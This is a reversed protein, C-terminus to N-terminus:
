SKFEGIMYLSGFIIIGDYGKFNRVDEKLQSLPQYRVDKHYKQVITMLDNVKMCRPNDIDTVIVADFIPMIIKCSDEVPKDGLMSFIGLLKDKPHFMKQISKKLAQIGEKNHGGDIITFPENSIVEFRGPWNAKKIGNFIHENSIPIELTERLTKVSEIALISNEVQYTGLMQTYFEDGIYRFTIGPNYSVIEYAKANVKIFPAEMENCCKKLVQIVSDKSNSTICPISKRIIGAKVKAIAEITDGLFDSHDMAIPTIVTLVKNLIGNTADELGGMGVELIAFDLAKDNFLSLALATMVEFKTPKLQHKEIVTKLKEVLRGYDADSICQNNYRYMDHDKTLKPTTFLGVSYGAELLIQYIYNSTSGKGNTGAVHIIKLSKEPHGLCALLKKIRGLGLDIGRVDLTSLYEQGQSYNM